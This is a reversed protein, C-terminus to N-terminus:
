EENVVAGVSQNRVSLPMASIYTYVSFLNSDVTTHRFQARPLFCFDLGSQANVTLDSDMKGVSLILLQVLILHPFKARIFSTLVWITSVASSALATRRICNKRIRIYAIASTINQKTMM